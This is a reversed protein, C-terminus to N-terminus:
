FDKNDEYLNTSFGLFNLKRISEIDVIQSKKNKNPIIELIM